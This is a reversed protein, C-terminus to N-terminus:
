RNLFNKNYESLMELSTMLAQNTNDYGSSGNSQAQIFALEQSFNKLEKLANIDNSSTALKEEIKAQILILIQQLTAGQPVQIGLKEALKKARDLLSNGNSTNQFIGSQNAEQQKQAEFSQILKQADKESINKAYSIGLAELKEKTQQTLKQNYAGYSAGYALNISHIGM